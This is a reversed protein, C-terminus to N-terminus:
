SCNPTVYERYCMYYTFNFNRIMHVIDWRKLSFLKITKPNNCTAVFSYPIPSSELLAEGKGQPRCWIVERVGPWARDWLGTGM